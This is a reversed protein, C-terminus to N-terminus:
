CSGEPSYPNSGKGKVLTTTKKYLTGKFINIIDKKYYVM